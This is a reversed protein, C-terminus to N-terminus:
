HAHSRFVGCALELDNNETRLMRLPTTKANARSTRINARSERPFGVVIRKINSARRVDRCLGRTREVGSLHLLWTGAQKLRSRWSGPVFLSISARTYLGSILVSPSFSPPAIEFTFSSPVLCTVTRFTYHETFIEPLYNKTIEDFCQDSPSQCSFASFASRMNRTVKIM